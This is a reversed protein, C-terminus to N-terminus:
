QPPTCARGGLSCLAGFVWQIRSEGRYREYLEQYYPATGERVLARYRSELAPFYSRLCDFFRHEAVSGAELRLKDLFVPMSEPLASIMGPVDTIGPLVPTIFVQTAIGLQALRNATHINPLERPDRTKQLHALNAQGLGITLTERYDLFLRLDDFFAPANSKTSLYCPVGRTHL